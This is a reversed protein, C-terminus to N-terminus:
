QKESLLSTEVRSPFAERLVHAVIYNSGGVYILDQASAELCAQHYAEMVSPFAKGQMGIKKAEELMETAPLGRESEPTAFYYHAEQPLLQLVEKWAKDAVMGFVIHLQNYTEKQLQQANLRIGELNHGTDLVVTPSLAVKQWRGLLHSNAEVKLFGRQVEEDTFSLLNRERIVELATLLTCTNFKQPEGHLKVQIAGFPSQSAQWEGNQNLHLSYPRNFATYFPAKEEEAKHQFVEVAVKEGLVIPTNTKIIGAKEAAIEPLTNGLFQTHDLSVNTIVSLIPHLINTSDLRGGMGVEVIALDVSQHAFYDFALLTTLEFFSPKWHTILPLAKQVFETVYSKEIPKGNVRIRERFSVLHPSTFLGVKLGTEMFISALTSSVSGKGNTGAVHISRFQTHPNGVAESMGYMRELGPKYAVGGKQEFSPTAQYLFQITEEYNM